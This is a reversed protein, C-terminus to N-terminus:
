RKKTRRAGARAPAQKKAAAAVFAANARQRFALHAGVM